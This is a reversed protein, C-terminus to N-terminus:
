RYPRSNERACDDALIEFERHPLAEHGERQLKYALREALATRLYRAWALMRRIARIIEEPTSERTESATSTKGSADDFGVQSAETALSEPGELRGPWKARAYLRGSHGPNQVQAM